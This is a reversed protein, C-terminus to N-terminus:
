SDVSAQKGSMDAQLLLCALGVLLLELLPEVEELELLPEVVKLELLSPPCAADM